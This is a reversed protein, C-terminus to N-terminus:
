TMSTANVQRQHYRRMKHRAGCANMACWRRGRARSTDLFLWGCGDCAGIRQVAPSRLLQLAEDALRHAISEVVDPCWALEFGSDGSILRASRIADAARHTVCAVAAAEPERGAAVPGFVGYLCERLAVADAVGTAGAGLRTQQVRNDILGAACAWDVIDDTDALDDITFMPRANVTNTFDLVIHNAVLVFPRRSRTSVM